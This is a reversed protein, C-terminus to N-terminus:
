DGFVNLEAGSQADPAAIHDLNINGAKDVVVVPPTAEMVATASQFGEKTAMTVPSMTTNTNINIPNTSVANDTITNVPLTSTTVHAGYRARAPAVIKAAMRESATMLPKQKPKM